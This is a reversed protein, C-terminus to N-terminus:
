RGPNARGHLRLLTSSGVSTRPPLNSVRARAPVLLGARLLLRVDPHHRHPGRHAREENRGPWARAPRQLGFSLLVSCAWRCCTRRRDVRGALEHREVRAVGLRRARLGGAHVSQGDRMLVSSSSSRRLSQRFMSVPPRAPHQPTHPHKTLM